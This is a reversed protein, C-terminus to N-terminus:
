TSGFLTKFNIFLKVWYLMEFILCFWAHLIKLVCCCVACVFYRDVTRLIIKKRVFAIKDEASVYVLM